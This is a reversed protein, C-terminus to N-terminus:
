SVIFYTIFDVAKQLQEQETISPIGDGEQAGYSGFFAHCGGEIVNEITNTPLNSGYEEYKERNLVKDESGYVSLVKLGSDAIDATSYSALLILGVYEERNEAIYSAAMSGGLSHGGLYWDTIEPFQEPIGEAASMDLVALNCPMEPLVCLIGREALARMLPAYAEYAVKGGPYFIFGTTMAEINDAKQTDGSSPKESAQEVFETPRFVLTGDELVSVEVQQDSEMASLAQETPHYYDNVYIAGATILCVCLATLIALIKKGLNKRKM